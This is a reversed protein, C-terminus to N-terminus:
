MLLILTGSFIFILMSIIDLRYQLKIKEDKTLNNEFEGSLINDFNFTYIYNYIHTYDLIDGLNNIFNDTQIIIIVLLSFIIFLMIHLIIGPTNIHMNLYNFVIRLKYSDLNVFATFLLLILIYFVAYILIAYRLSKVINYDILFEFLVMIMTRIAFMLALFVVKDQFTIKLVIEPDLDYLIVKNKLKEGENIYTLPNKDKQNNYYAKVGDSYDNWIQEYLTEKENYKKGSANDSGIDKDDDNDFVTKLEAIFAFLNNDGESKGQRILKYLNGELLGRLKDKEEKDEKAGGGYLAGGRPYRPNNIGQGQSKTIEKKDNIKKANSTIDIKIDGLEKDIRDIEKNYVEIIENNNNIQPNDDIIYKLQGVKIINKVFDNYETAYPLNIDICAKYLKRLEDKIVKLSATLQKKREELNKSKKENEKNQNELEELEKKTEESALENTGIGYSVRYNKIEANIVEGHDSLEQSITDFNTKISERETNKEEKNKKETSSLAKLSNNFNLLETLKKGYKDIKVRIKDIATIKDAKKDAKKDDDEKTNTNENEIASIKKHIDALLKQYSDIKKENDKINDMIKNKIEETNDISAEADEQSKIVLKILHKIESEDKIFKGYEKALNIYIETLNKLYEKGPNGPMKDGIGQKQNGQNGQNGQNKINGSVANQYAGGIMESNTKLAELATKLAGLATKLAELETKLENLKETTDNKDKAVVEKVKAAKAAAEQAKAVVEKVKAAKAAAEQAKAAEAAEAATEAAAAAAAAAAEAAEAAKAEAAAEAAAEAEAATKVAAAADAVAKEAAAKETAAKEAATQAAAAKETAAKEAATQAAAADAVAKEAAAKATAADAVAKEAAAKEAQTQAAAAKEAAATQAAAADAVAKEAAAKAAAAEAAKAAAAEAAKAAKAAAAEAAKAAAAEAAGIAETTKVLAIQITEAAAAEAATKVAAPAADAAPAPTQAGSAKKMIINLSKIIALYRNSDDIMRDKIKEIFKNFDGFTINGKDIKGNIKNPTRKFFQETIEALKNVTKKSQMETIYEDIKKNNVIGELINKDIELYAKRRFQEDNGVAEFFKNLDINLNPQKIQGPGGGKKLTTLNNFIQARKNIECLIQNFLNKDYDIECIDKPTKKPKPPPEKGNVEKLIAKIPKKLVKKNRGIKIEYIIALKDYINDILDYKVDDDRSIVDDKLKEVKKTFEKYFDLIVLDDIDKYNSKKFIGNLKNLDDYIQSKEQFDYNTYNYELLPKFYVPNGKNDLIKIVPIYGYNISSDRYNKRLGIDGNFIDDPIEIDTNKEPNEKYKKEIHEKLRKIAIGDDGEGEIIKYIIKNMIVDGLVDVGGKCIEEEGINEELTWRRYNYRYKNKFELQFYKILDKILDVGIKTNDSLTIYKSNYDNKNLSKLAEIRKNSM